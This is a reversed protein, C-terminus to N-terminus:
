KFWSDIEKKMEDNSITRNAKVDEIGKEIKDLFILQDILDELSIEDPLNQIQKQISKKSLM